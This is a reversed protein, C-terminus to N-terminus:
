PPGGDLPPCGCRNNENIKYGCQICMRGSQDAYNILRTSQLVDDARRKLVEVLMEADNAADVPDRDLAERLARKLWDSAAPDAIIAEPDIM